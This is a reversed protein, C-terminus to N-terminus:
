DYRLAEIPDLKAARSAPYIGFFLGIGVSFGVALAISSTSVIVSWGGTAALVRAMGIGVLLGLAGGVICLVVSELLFQLLIGKRQAGIAMRVGIERTRETVSVLMINMIGIGGVVLSVAAIGALLFTFTRSTEAFTEMIDLQNRVQFDNDSDPHLKHRRRLIREIEGAAANMERQSAVQVTISGLRDTGLLRHQGTKLPIIAVNDPNRWGEAGKAALVGVVEFAHGQIRIQESVMSPGGGLAEVVDAGLVAVRRRGEVEASTFFRGHVLEFRRVPFYDPETAVVSASTNRNRYKVQYNRSMEPVVADALTMQESLASADDSTLPVFTSAVARNRSYLPRVYLLNVGLSTIRDQVSRSAGEGIAMMAIVAGVGIIIGLMTLLARGKNAMLAAIAVRITEWILM